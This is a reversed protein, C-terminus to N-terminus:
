CRKSEEFLRVNSGKQPAGQMHRIAALDIPSVGAFGEPVFTVTTKDSIEKVKQVGQAALRELVTAQVAQSDLGKYANAVTRIALAEADAIARIAIAKAEAIESADMKAM